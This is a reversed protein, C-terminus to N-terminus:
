LVIYKNAITTSTRNRPWSKYLTGVRSPDFPPTHRSGTKDSLKTYPVYDIAHQKSLHGKKRLKMELNDTRTIIDYLSVRVTGQLDLLKNDMKEFYHQVLKQIRQTNKDQQTLSSILENVKNDLNDLDQRTVPEVLHVLPPGMANIANFEDNDKNM